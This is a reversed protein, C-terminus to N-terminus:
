HDGIDWLCEPWTAKYIEVPTEIPYGGEALEAVVKELGQVSLLFHGYLNQASCLQPPNENPVPPGTLWATISVKLSKLSQIRNWHCAAGLFLESLFVTM